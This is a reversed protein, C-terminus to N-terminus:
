LYGRNTIRKRDAHCLIRPVGRRAARPTMRARKPKPVELEVLVFRYDAVDDDSRGDPRIPNVCFYVGNEDSFQMQDALGFWDRVTHIEDRNLKAEDDPWTVCVYDDPKYIGTLFEIPTTNVLGTPLDVRDGSPTFKKYNPAQRERSYNNGTRNSTSAPTPNRDHAGKILDKIERDAKDADPCWTRLINFIEGDPIREGVMQLALSRLADHRGSAAPPPTELQRQIYSPIASMKSSGETVAVM